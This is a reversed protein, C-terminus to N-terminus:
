IAPISETIAASMSNIDMQLYFCSKRGTHCAAGIQEVDCLLTDGDCDARMTKLRQGHGSTDGKRWLESRSRSWYTMDGSTLTLEIAVRNMWALMLVEGSQHDQAVVPILGNTDFVLNDIVTSIPLRDGKRCEEFAVFTSNIM